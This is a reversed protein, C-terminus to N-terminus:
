YTVDAIPRFVPMEDDFRRVPHHQHVPSLSAKQHYRNAKTSEPIGGLTALPISCGGYQDPSKAHPM